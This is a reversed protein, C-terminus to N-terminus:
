EEERNSPTSARYQELAAKFQQEFLEQDAADIGGALVTKDVSQSLEEILRLRENEEMENDRPTENRLRRLERASQATKEDTPDEVGMLGRLIEDITWGVIAAENPM